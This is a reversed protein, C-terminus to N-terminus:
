GFRVDLVPMESWGDAPDNQSDISMARIKQIEFQQNYYEAKAVDVTLPVALTSAMLLQLAKIAYPPLFEEKSRYVYEVHIEPQNTYIKDGIIEYDVAPITSDLRLYDTPLQFMYQYEPHEPTGALRNLNAYKKAFNWNTSSLFDRYTSEYLNKALLAGAGPEEFSSIPNHGLLLLANSCIEVKKDM